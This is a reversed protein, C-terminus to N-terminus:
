RSIEDIRVWWRERRCKGAFILMSEQCALIVRVPNGYGMTTNYSSPWCSIIRRRRRSDSIAELTTRVLLTPGQMEM